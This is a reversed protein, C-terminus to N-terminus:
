VGAGAGHEHLIAMMRDKGALKLKKVRKFELDEEPTLYRKQALLEVQRKMIVHEEYLLRYEENEALMRQHISGDDDVNM